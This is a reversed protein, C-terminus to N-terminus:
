NQTYIEKCHAWAAKRKQDMRVHVEEKAHSIKSISGPRCIADGSQPKAICFERRLVFVNKNEILETLTLKTNRASSLCVCCFRNLPFIFYIEM